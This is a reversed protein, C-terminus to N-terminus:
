LLPTTKKEGERSPSHAHTHYYGATKSFNMIVKADYMPFAAAIRKARRHKMAMTYPRIGLNELQARSYQLCLLFFSIQGLPPEMWNWAWSGVELWTELDAPEPVDTTVYERNFWHITPLHFCLPISGLGATLAVTIGLKYPITQFLMGQSNVAAISYFTQEAQDYSVKDVNMIHRKLVEVCADHNKMTSLTILTINDMERCSLPMATAIDLTPTTIRAALRRPSASAVNPRQLRRGPRALTAMAHVRGGLWNQFTFPKSPNATMLHGPSRRAVIM